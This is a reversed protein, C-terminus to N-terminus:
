RCFYIGFLSTLILHEKWPWMISVNLLRWHGNAFRLSKSTPETWHPQWCLCRHRECRNHGLACRCWSQLCLLEAPGASLFSKAPRPHSICGNWPNWPNEEDHEPDQQLARPKLDGHCRRWCIGAQFCRINHNESKVKSHPRTLLCESLMEEVLSRLVPSRM